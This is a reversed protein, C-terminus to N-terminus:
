LARAMWWDIQPDDGMPFVHEGVRAFGHKRYFAQARPNHEWVGLFMAKFKERRAAKFCHEILAPAVGHGHFDQAVYLRSLEIANRENVCDPPEPRFLKAYGVMQGDLEALYFTALADEWEDTFQEVTFATSMYAQMNEPTNTAVFADYFTRAALETLAPLDPRLALRILPKKMCWDADM